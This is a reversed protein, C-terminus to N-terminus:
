SVGRVIMQVAIVLLVAVFLRRITASALRPLLRSGLSSGAAVGVAVPTALLPDMEGRMLFVVAGAAATVGIMLNSTATSVKIPLRMALDMAPVKMVGSGIGLLGSTIGAGVMLGFGLVPRQATYHVAVGRDVFEGSLDLGGAPALSVQERRRRLMMAASYSLLLGFLVFLVRPSVVGAAVAGVVAGFTTAVELFIAVRLNSLGDRVYSSAAGTSTAIVAVLSAAIAQHIDVGMVLTLFPVILVGGGLGVLAGFGGAVLAFALIEVFQWIDIEVLVLIDQESL